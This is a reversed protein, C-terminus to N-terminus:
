PIQGGLNNLFELTLEFLIDNLDEIFPAKFSVNGEYIYRLKTYAEADESLGEEYAAQREQESNANMKQSVSLRIKNSLEPALAEVLCKLSHRDKGKIGKMSQEDILLKLLLECSFSINVFAVISLCINENDMQPYTHKTQKDIKDVLVDHSERYAIALRLSFNKAEDNNSYTRGINYAFSGLKM